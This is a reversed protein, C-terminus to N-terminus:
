IKIREKGRIGEELAQGDSGTPFRVFRAVVLQYYLVALYGREPVQLQHNFHVNIWRIAAMFVELQFSLSGLGFASGCLM